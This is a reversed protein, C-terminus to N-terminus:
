DKGRTENGRQDGILPRAQGKRVPTMINTRGLSRRACAAVRGPIGARTVRLEWQADGGDGRAEPRGEGAEQSREGM